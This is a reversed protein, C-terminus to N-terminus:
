RREYEVEARVHPHPGHANAVLWGLSSGVTAFVVGSLGVAALAQNGDHLGAAFTAGSAVILLLGTVVVYGAARM